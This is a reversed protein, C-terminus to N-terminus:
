ILSHVIYGFIVNMSKGYFFSPDNYTKLLAEITGELAEGSYSSPLMSRFIQELELLTEPYVVPSNDMGQIISVGNKPEDIPEELPNNFLNVYIDGTGEPLSAVDFFTLKNYSLDLQSVKPPLSNVNFSTLNNHSLKLLTLWDPFGEVEFHSINNNSLRIVGLEKPLSGTFSTIKNYSLDLYELTDPFGGVDVTVLSARVTLTKLNPFMKLSGLHELNGESSYEQFFRLDNVESFWDEPRDELQGMFYETIDTIGITEEVNLRINTPPPAPVIIRRIVSGSAPIDIDESYAESLPAQTNREQRTCSVNALQLCLLPIICFLKLFRM